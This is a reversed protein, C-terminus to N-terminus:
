VVFTVKFSVTTVCRYGLETINVMSCYNFFITFIYVEWIEVKFNHCVFRKLVEYIYFINHLYNYM